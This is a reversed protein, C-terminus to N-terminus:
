VSNEALQEEEIFEVFEAVNSVPHKFRIDAQDDDAALAGPRMDRVQNVSIGSGRVDWGFAHAPLDSVFDLYLDNNGVVFLLNFANGAFEDLLERDKELYHGGYQMPTCFLERAGHLRYLIGEAGHALAERIELRTEDVIEDLEIAGIEPDLRIMENLDIGRIRAKGFPNVVEALLIRGDELPTPQVERTMWSPVVLADAFEEPEGPWVIVPKQDVEQGQGVAIVRERSTM